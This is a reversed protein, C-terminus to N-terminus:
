GDIYAPVCEHELLVAHGADHARKTGVVVRELHEVGRDHAYRHQEDPVRFARESAGRNQVKISSCFGSM